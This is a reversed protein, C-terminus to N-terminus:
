THDRIFDNIIQVAIKSRTMPLFHGSNEIIQTKILPNVQRLQSMQPAKLVSGKSDGGVLLCPKQMRKLARWIDHGHAMYTQAEWNPDCALEFKGDKELLGDGLYDTLFGDQWRSFPLKQSYRDIAMQRSTFVKRRNKANVVLPHHKRIGTQFFQSRMLFQILRPLIPPDFAVVGDILDPRKQATLLSTTAGMSHGVLIPPKAFNELFDILDDRHVYWNKLPFNTDFTTLGHGRMDPASIEYGPTLTQFISTYTRANFGTAHIFVLKAQDFREATHLCHM